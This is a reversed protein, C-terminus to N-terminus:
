RLRAVINLVITLVVSVVLCTVIPFLFSVTGRTSSVDGPLHGLGLRAGLVLAGGVVAMVVGAILLLRGVDAISMPSSDLRREPLM